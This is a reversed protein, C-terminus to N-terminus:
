INPTYLTGFAAPDAPGGRVTQRGAESHFVQLGGGRRPVWGGRPAGGKGAPPGAGARHRLILAVALAVLMLAALGIALARALSGQALKRALSGRDSNRSM